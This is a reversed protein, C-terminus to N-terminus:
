LCIASLTRDSEELCCLYWFLDRQGPQLGDCVSRTWTALVHLYDVANAHPEGTTFFGQPLGGINRWARDGAQLLERLRDPRATQGDALELLKPHGQAMTIANRALQRSVTPGIGPVVGLKLASLNPLERALLLAEDASLADVAEARLGPLTGAPLRRSTLIVRGLGKHGTLAGAVLDWREDRWAGAASLLSEVNDIVILVRRHELLETLRPLFSALADASVLSDAMRLGDLYRELTLALDTLAGDTAMGEDPAKYWVLQDFAHEQGYALELACATKGGGPM